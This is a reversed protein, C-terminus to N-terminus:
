AEVGDAEALMAERAAAAEARLRSAGVADSADLRHAAVENKLWRDAHRYYLRSHRNRIAYDRDTTREWNGNLVVLDSVKKFYTTNKIPYSVTTLFQQPECKKVLEITAEM